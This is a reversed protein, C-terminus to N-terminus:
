DDDGAYALAALGQADIIRIRSCGCAVQGAAGLRTKISARRGNLKDQQSPSFTIAASVPRASRRTLFIRAPTDDRLNM